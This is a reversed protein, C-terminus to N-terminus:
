KVFVDTRAPGGNWTRLFATNRNIEQTLSTLQDMTAPTFQSAHCGLAQRARAADDATYAIRVNLHEDATPRFPSPFKLSALLEPRLGSKPLSAYLVNSTIAATQAIQTVLASILRHDPHGYGGEPGWTVIADPGIDKITQELRAAVDALVRSQSFGGDPFGLLIPAGTGLAKAACAAEKIRVAALEAGAAIKSFPMMGNEGNTAIVLSVSVGPQRAYRALLPGAMTEDDPHAFIALLKRTSTPAPASQASLLGSSAVTLAIAACWTRAVRM